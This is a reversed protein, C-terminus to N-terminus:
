LTGTVLQKTHKINIIYKTLTYKMNYTLFYLHRNIIIGTRIYYYKSLTNIRRSENNFRLKRVRCNSLDSYM